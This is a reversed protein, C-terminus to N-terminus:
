RRIARLVGFVRQAACDSSSCYAGASVSAPLIPAPKGCPSGAGTRRRCSRSATRSFRRPWSASRRARTPCSVCERVIRYLHADEKFLYIDLHFKFAAAARATALADGVSVADNLAHFAADLAHHDKEYVKAVLPAVVEVAPFDAIEEGHAHAVLVENFYRFRELVAELGPTGRAAALAATDIGEM